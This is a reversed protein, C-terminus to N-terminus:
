ELNQPFKFSLNWERLEYDILGATYYPDGRALEEAEVMSRVRWVILAGKSDAFRGSLAVKGEKAKSELYSLHSARIKDDPLRRYSTLECVIM